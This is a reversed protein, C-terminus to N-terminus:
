RESSRVVTVAPAMSAAVVTAPADVAGAEQVVWAVEAMVAAVQAAEARVVGEMEAGASAVVVPDAVVAAGEVTGVGAGTAGMATAVRAKAAAGAAVVAM